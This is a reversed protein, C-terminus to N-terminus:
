YLTVYNVRAADRFFIWPLPITQGSSKFARDIKARMFADLRSALIEFELDRNAQVRAIRARYFGSLDFIGAWAGCAM